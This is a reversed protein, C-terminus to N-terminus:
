MRPSSSAPLEESRAEPYALQLRELLATKEVEFQQSLEASEPIEGTFVKHVTPKTPSLVLDEYFICTECSEQTDNPQSVDLVSVIKDVQLLQALPQSSTFKDIGRLKQFVNYQIASCQTTGRLCMLILRRNANPEALPQEDLILTAIALSVAEAPQPQLKNIYLDLGASINGTRLHALARLADVERSLSGAQNYGTHHLDEIITDAKDLAENLAELCAQDIEPSNLLTSASDRYKLAETHKERYTNNRSIFSKIDATVADSIENGFLHLTTLTHNDKLATAIDKAGTDSIHNRDLGLARLTHNYKLAIAIDKAGGDSTENVGLYLEALTHNVKLAMALDTTGADSIQNECLDLITLSHNDQLAMAIDKAGADSIPNAGVDLRALTHTDILAMAIDKAGAHRIQNDSLYLTTLTHNIQLAMAIDKAGDDSIENGGLNLGTLSHNHKLARALDKVNAESLGEHSLDLDIVGEAMRQLVAHIKQM